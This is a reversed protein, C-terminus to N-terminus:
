RTHMHLHPAPYSLALDRGCAPSVTRPTDQARSKPLFRLSPDFHVSSPALALISILTLGIAAKFRMVVNSNPQCSLQTRRHQHIQLRPLDHTFVDAFLHDRGLSPPTKYLYRNAGPYAGLDGNRRSHLKRYHAGRLNQHESFHQRHRIQALFNRVDRGLYYSPDISFQPSRAHM